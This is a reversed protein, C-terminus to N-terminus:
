LLNLIQLIKDNKRKKQNSESLCLELSCMLITADDLILFNTTKHKFNAKCFVIQYLISGNEALCIKVFADFFTKANTRTFTLFRLFSITFVKLKNKLIRIRCFKQM